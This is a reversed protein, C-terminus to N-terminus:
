SCRTSCECCSRTGSKGTPNGKLLGIVSTVTGMVAKLPNAVLVSGLGAGGIIIIFESVQNLAAVKGGHMTYGALISGFVVVLGIILFM